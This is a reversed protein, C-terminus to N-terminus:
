FFVRTCNDEDEEEGLMWLEDLKKIREEGPSLVDNARMACSFSVTWGNVGAAYFAEAAAAERSGCRVLKYIQRGNFHAGHLFPENAQCTSLVVYYVLPTGDLAESKEDTCTSCPGALTDGLTCSHGATCDYIDDDTPTVLASSAWLRPTELSVPRANQLATLEEPTRGNLAHDEQRRIWSRKPKEYWMETDCHHFIWEFEEFDAIYARHFSVLVNRRFPAIRVIHGTDIISEGSYRVPILDSPTRVEELYEPFDGPHHRCGTPKLPPSPPPPPPPPPLDLLPPAAKM